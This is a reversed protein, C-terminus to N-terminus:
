LLLWLVARFVSPWVCCHETDSRQLLCCDMWLKKWFMRSRTWFREMNNKRQRKKTSVWWFMNKRPKSGRVPAVNTASVLFQDRLNKTWTFVFLFIDRGRLDLEWSYNQNRSIAEWELFAPECRFIHKLFGLPDRVVLSQFLTTRWAIYMGFLDRTWQFPHGTLM